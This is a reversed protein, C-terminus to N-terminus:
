PNNAVRISTLVARTRRGGSGCATPQSDKAENPDVSLTMECAVTVMVDVSRRWEYKANVKVGNQHWVICFQMIAVM